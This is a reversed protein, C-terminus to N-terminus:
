KNKSHLYSSPNNIVKQILALEKEDFLYQGGEDNFAKSLKKSFLSRKTADDPDGLGAAKMVQSAKLLTGDLANQVSAYDKEYTSGNKSSNDNSEPKKAEKHSNTEKIKNMLNERLISKIVSKEM